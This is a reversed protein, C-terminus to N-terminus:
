RVFRARRVEEIAEDMMKSPSGPEMAMVAIRMSTLQQILPDKLYTVGTKRLEESQLLAFMRFSNATFHYFAQRYRPEKPTYTRWNDGRLLWSFNIVLHQPQVSSWGGPDYAETALKKTLMLAAHAPYPGDEFLLEALWDGYRVRPDYSTRQLAPDITWGLWLWPLRMEKMQAKLTPGEVKNALVDPPLALGTQASNTYIRALDGVEWMPNTPAKSPDPHPIPQLEALQVRMRHQLVLLSRAKALAVAKSPPLMRSWASTYIRDIAALNSTSPEALYRDEAEQLAPSFPLPEVDPIWHALSAHDDGHFRDESLRNFAIGIPLRGPDLTRINALAAHADQLTAIPKGMLLPLHKALSLAFASDREAANDGDLVTGGPQMPRDRMPDLNGPLKLKQRLALFYAALKDAAVAGLHPTARRRITASDYAYAALEIGDPSHCSACARGLKDPTRWLLIGAQLPDEM